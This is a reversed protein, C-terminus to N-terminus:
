SLYRSGSIIKPDLRPFLPLPDSPISLLVGLGGARSGEPGNSGQRGAAGPPRLLQHSLAPSRETDEQRTRSLRGSSLPDGCSAGRGKGSPMEWSAVRRELSNPPAPGLLSSVLRGPGLEM